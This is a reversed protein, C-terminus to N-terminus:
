GQCIKPNKCNGNAIQNVSALIAAVIGEQSTAAEINSPAIWPNIALLSLAVAILTLVAKTYIDVFMETDGKLREM